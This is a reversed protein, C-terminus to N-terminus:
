WRKKIWTLIGNKRGTCANFLDTAQIKTVSDNYRFTENWDKVITWNVELERGTKKDKEFDTFLGSLRFLKEIDHTFSDVANKKDPFDYRRVQKAICAKLACEVSYGILYYAGCYYGEEMLKRAELVRLRAIKQFSERNM